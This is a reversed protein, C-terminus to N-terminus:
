ILLWVVVIQHMLFLNLLSEYKKLLNQLYIAVEEENGNVSKIKVVDQLISIKESKEM